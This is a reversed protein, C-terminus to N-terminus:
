RRVVVTMNMTTTHQTCWFKYKGVKKFRKTFKFPASISTQATTFKKKKVGKPGKRLTVNHNSAGPVWKWQVKQGKKIKVKGKNFFDNEVKVKEPKTSKAFPSAVGAVMLAGAVLAALAVVIGTRIRARVPVEQM